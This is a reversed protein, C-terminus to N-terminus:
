IVGRERLERAVARYDAAAISRPAHATIPKGANWAPAITKSIRITTRLLLGGAKQVLEEHIVRAESSTKAWSETKIELVGALRLSPNMRLRVYKTVEESIARLGDLGLADRECPVLVHSAALLAAGSLRGLAPPCDLVVVDYPEPEGQRQELADRLALEAGPESRMHEDAQAMDAAASLVDVGFDTSVVVRAIPVHYRLVHFAGSGRAFDVAVGLHQTAHGQPDLDVLLVRLGLEALAAALNAATTTKAVGGKRSAVAVIPPAPPPKTTDPM